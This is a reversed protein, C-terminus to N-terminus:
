ALDKKQLFKQRKKELEEEDIPIYLCSECKGQIDLTIESLLCGERTWYVCYINECPM